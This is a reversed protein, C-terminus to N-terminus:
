DEISQDSSLKDSSNSLKDSSNHIRLFIHLKADDLAGFVFTVSLPVRKGTVDYMMGNHRRDILKQLYIPRHINM